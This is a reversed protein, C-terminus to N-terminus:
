AHLDELAEIDDMGSIAAPLVDYGVDRVATVLAPVNARQPDFQVTARSTAFNVSAQEVGPVCQLTREITRACAACTMGTVPLTIDQSV